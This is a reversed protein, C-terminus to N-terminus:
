RMRKYFPIFHPKLILDIYAQGNLRVGEPIMVLPGKKSGCFTGWVGVRTRGSKFTPQLNKELWEEGPARTVYVVTSDEGVEFYAEDSWCIIVWKTKRHRRCHVLRKAKNVPSIWPKRRPKRKAKGHDKLINRVTNYHIQQGSKSPTSLSRFLM